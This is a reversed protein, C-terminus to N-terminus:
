IFDLVQNHLDCIESTCTM